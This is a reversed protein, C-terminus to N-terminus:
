IQRGRLIKSGEECSKGAIQFTKAITKGKNTERYHFSMARVQSTHTSAQWTKEPCLFSPVLTGDAGGVKIEAIYGEIGTTGLTHYNAAFRAKGRRATRHM